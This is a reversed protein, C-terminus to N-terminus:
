HAQQPTLVRRARALQPTGPIDGRGGVKWAPLGIEKTNGVVLTSVFITRLAIGVDGVCGHTVSCPDNIHQNVVALRRVVGCYTLRLWDRGIILFFVVPRGTATSHRRDRRV